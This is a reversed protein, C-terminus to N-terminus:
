GIFTKLKELLTQKAAQGTEATFQLEEFIRTLAQLERWVEDRAKSDGRKTSEFEELLRAKVKLYAGEFHCLAAEAGKGEDVLAHLQEDETM